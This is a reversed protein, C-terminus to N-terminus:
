SKVTPALALNSLWNPDPKNPLNFRFPDVTCVTVISGAPKTPPEAAPTFVLLLTALTKDPKSTVLVAVTDGFTIQFASPILILLANTNVLPRTLIAAPLLNIIPFKEANDAALRETVGPDPNVLPVTDFHIADALVSLTCDPLSYGPMLTFLLVLQYGNILPVLKFLLTYKNGFLLGVVAPSTAM